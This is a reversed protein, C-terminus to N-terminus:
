DDARFGSAKVAPAWKASDEAMRKALEDPTSGVPELGLAVLQESV